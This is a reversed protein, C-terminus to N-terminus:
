RSGRRPTSGRVSRDAGGGTPPGDSSLELLRGTVGRVLNLAINKHDTRSIATTADGHPQRMRHPHGSEGPQDDCASCTCTQYTQLLPSGYPGTSHFTSTPLSFLASVAVPVVAGTPDSVMGCEM